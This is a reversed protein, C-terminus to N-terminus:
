QYKFYKVYIKGVIMVVLIFVVILITILKVDVDVGELEVGELLELLFLLIALIM